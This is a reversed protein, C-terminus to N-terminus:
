LTRHIWDDGYRGNPQPAQVVSSERIVLEPQLVITRPESDGRHQRRGEIVRHLERVACRGLEGLDQRVTSLPPHFFRSEPVDDFGVVALDEPIRRELKRAAKLAGLAMQDNCAFVAQVAPHQELLRHLAREGSAASWTGEVVLSDDATLDAEKLAGEWGLKRERASWWNLPGAILGIQRYGEAVLHTTALYGGARNDVNVVSLNSYPHTDLFVVPVPLQSLEEIVWDRNSGIESVAWIVGDVHYSLMDRLFPAGSMEPQRTLSLLLTYGLENAEQEIGALTHSPGFYQVGYSVVGLTCSRGQTLSRAIISPRYGLREIVELVRQRTEEAVDPKDNLVRSITQRSVGAAAAVDRITTKGM